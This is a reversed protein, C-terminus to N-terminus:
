SRGALAARDVAEVCLDGPHKYLHGRELICEINWNLNKQVLNLHHHGEVGMCVFMGLATRECGLLCTLLLRRLAPSGCRGTPGLVWGVIVVWVMLLVLLVLPLVPMLRPQQLCMRFWRMLVGRQIVRQQQLWTLPTVGM